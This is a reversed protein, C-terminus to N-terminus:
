VVRDVVIEALDEAAAATLLVVNEIREEVFASGAAVVFRRELEFDIGGHL